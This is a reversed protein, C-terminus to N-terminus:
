TGNPPTEASETLRAAPEPTGRRLFRRGVHVTEPEGLDESPVFYGHFVDPDELKGDGNRVVVGLIMIDILFNWERQLELMYTETM